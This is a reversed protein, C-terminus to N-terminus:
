KETKPKAAKEIIKKLEPIRLKAEKGAKSEPDDELIKEWWEVAQLALELRRPTQEAPWSGSAYADLGHAEAILVRRQEAIDEEEWPKEKRADYDLLMKKAAVAAPVGPWRLYCAKLMMLGSYLTEKDKLRKKGEELLLDAWEERTPHTPYGSIRSGPYLKAMERRKAAAEDLWEMVEQLQKGSPQEHGLKAVVWVRSRIGLEKFSKGRLLELEGRNFDTEGTVLAVSLRDAVRQRVSSEDRPRLDASGCIAVVGGFYEPLAFAISCATRGGGSFGALYTRDVDIKYNRRMDDLVDMIIRVRKHVPCDNGAGHAGAFLIGRETCPKEWAKWGVPEKSPSIFVVLPWLKKPDYKPPVYLEYNQEKSNYNPLWDPPVKDKPISQNALPFTWDLRTPASVSVKAHYGTLPDAARVEAVGLGLVAGVFGVAYKVIMTQGQEDGITSGDMELITLNNHLSASGEELM